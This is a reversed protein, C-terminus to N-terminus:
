RLDCAARAACAIPATCAFRDARTARATSANGADLSSVGHSAVSSSDLGFGIDNDVGGATIGVAIGIGSTFVGAICTGVFPLPPNASAVAADSYLLSHANDRNVVVDYRQM